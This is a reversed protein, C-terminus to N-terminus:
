SDVLYKVLKKTNFFRVPQGEVIEFTIIKAPNIFTNRFYRLLNNALSVQVIKETICGYIHFHDPFYIEPGNEYM